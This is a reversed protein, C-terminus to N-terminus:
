FLVYSGEEMKWGIKRQLLYFEEAWRSFAKRNGIKDYCAALEYVASCTRNSYEHKECLTIAEEFLPIAKDYQEQKKNCIGAIMLIKSLRFDDNIERGILLAREMCAQASEWNNQATYLSTLYTYTDAHRRSSNKNQALDLVLYFQELAQVYNEQQLYISGLINLFDLLYSKQSVNRHIIEISEKCYKLAEELENNEILLICYSKYLLLRIRVSQIQGISPWIQKILRVAEKRRESKRLYLIKNGTLAYRIEAQKTDSFQKLGEDAYYIAEQLNNQEYCGTSLENYCKAILNPKAIFTQKKCYSLTETWIKLAKEWQSLEFYYLGQLYHAYPFLAHHEKPQYRALLKKAQDLEEDDILDEVCELKVRLTEIEQLEKQKLEELEEANINLKQFLHLVKSKSPNGEMNEIHSITGTSINKDKLNDLSLGRDLRIKRAMYALLPLDKTLDM